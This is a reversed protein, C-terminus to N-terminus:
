LQLDQATEVFGCSLFQCLLVYEETESKTVTVYAQIVIIDTASYLKWSQKLKGIKDRSIYLFSEPVILSCRLSQSYHVLCLHLSNVVLINIFDGLQPWIKPGRCKIHQPTGSMWLHCVCVQHVALWRCRRSSGVSHTDKWCSSLSVSPPSLPVNSPCLSPSYIPLSTCQWFGNPSDFSFIIMRLWFCRIGKLPLVLQHLTM